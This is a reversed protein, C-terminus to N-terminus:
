GFRDFKPGSASDARILGAFPADLGGIWSRVGRNSDSGGAAGTSRYGWAQKPKGRLARADVQPNLQKVLPLSTWTCADTLWGSVVGGARESRASLGRSRDRRAPPFLRRKRLESRGPMSFDM